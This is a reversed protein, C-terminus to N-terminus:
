ACPVCCLATEATRACPAYWQEKDSDYQAGLEKAENGEDYPCDLVFRDDGSM